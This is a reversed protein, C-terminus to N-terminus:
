FSTWFNATAQAAARIQAPTSALTVGPIGVAIALRAVDIASLLDPTYFFSITGRSRSSAPLSSNRVAIAIDAGATPTVNADGSVFAVTLAYVDPNATVAINTCTFTQFTPASTGVGRVYILISGGSGSLLTSIENEIGNKIGTYTGTSIFITNTTSRFAGDPTAIAGATVAAPNTSSNWNWTWPGVGGEEGVILKGILGDNGASYNPSMWWAFGGVTSTWSGTPTAFNSTPSWAVYGTGSGGATPNYALRENAM